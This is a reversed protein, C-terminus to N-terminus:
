PHRFSLSVGATDDVAYTATAVDQVTGVYSVTKSLDPVAILAITGPAVGSGAPAVVVVHSTDGDASITSFVQYSTGPPATVATQRGVVTFLVARDGNRPTALRVALEGSRPGQDVCGMALAGLLGAGVWAALARRM